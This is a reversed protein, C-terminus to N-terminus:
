QAAPESAPAVAPMDQANMKMHHFMHRPGGFGHHKFKMVNQLEPNEAIAAELAARQDDHAKQLANMREAEDVISAAVNLASAHAQKVSKMIAVIADANKVFAEERAAM